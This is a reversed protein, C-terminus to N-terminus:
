KRSSRLSTIWWEMRLGTALEFHDKKLVFFTAVGPLQPPLITERRAIEVTGTYGGPSEKVHPSTAMKNSELMLVGGAPDIREIDAVFRAHKGSFTIDTFELGVLYRDPGDKQLIRVRGTLVSGSPIM